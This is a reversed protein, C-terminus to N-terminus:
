HGAARFREAWTDWSAPTMWLGHVLVIPPKTTSPTGATEPTQQTTM